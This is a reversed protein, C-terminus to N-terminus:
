STDSTDSRTGTIYPLPLGRIIFGVLFMHRDLLVALAEDVELSEFVETKNDGIIVAFDGSDTRFFDVAATLDFYPSDQNWHMGFVPLGARNAVVQHEIEGAPISEDQLVFQLGILGKSYPDVMIDLPPKEWLGIRFHLTPSHSLEAPQSSCEIVVVGETPQELSVHFEGACNVVSTLQLM